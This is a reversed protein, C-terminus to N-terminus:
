LNVLDSQNICILTVLHSNAKAEGDASRCAIRTSAAVPIPYPFMAPGVAFSALAGSGTSAQEYTDAKIEGVSSESAAAGTGIDVQVYQQVASANQDPQVLVGLVFIAAATSAIMEVWSGYTNASASSAVTKGNAPGAPLLFYGGGSTKKAASVAPVRKDIKYTANNAITLGAQVYVLADGVNDGLDPVPPPTAPDGDVQAATGTNDIGCWTWRPDASDPVLTYASAQASVTTSSGNHTVVGAALDIDLDGTGYTLACGSQVNYLGLNAIAEITTAAIPEVNDLASWPM